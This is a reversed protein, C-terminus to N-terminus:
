NFYIGVSDLVAKMEKKYKATKLEPRPIQLVKEAFECMKQKDSLGEQREIEDLWLTEAEIKKAEAEVEKKQNDFSQILFKIEALKVNWQNADLDKILALHTIYHNNYGFMDLKMVLGLSVLLEARMEARQNIFAQRESNIAEQEARFKSQEAEFVAKEADLKDQAVKQEDRLRQQELELEKREQEAKREQEELIDKDKKNLEEISSIYTNFDDESLTELNICVLTEQPQGTKSNWVYENGVIYMGQSMLLNHRKSIFMQREAEKKDELEKIQADIRNKESSLHEEIPSIMQIIEKARDDVARGYALSDSKLDKRMKEVATRRSIMYKLGEKVEKIKEIDELNEIKLPLYMKKLEDIMPIVSEFKKLERQILVDFSTPLEAIDMNNEDCIFPADQQTTEEQQTM